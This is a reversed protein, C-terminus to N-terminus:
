SGTEKAAWLVCAPDKKAVDSGRGHTWNRKNLVCKSFNKQGGRVSQRHTCSGCTEGKPGGGPAAAHGRPKPLGRYRLASEPLVMLPQQVPVPTPAHTCAAARQAIAVEVPKGRLYATTM